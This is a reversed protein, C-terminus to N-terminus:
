VPLVQYIQRKLEEEDEPLFVVEIPLCHERLEVALGVACQLRQRLLVDVDAEAELADGRHQLARLVVELGLQEPRVEIVEALDAAAGVTAVLAAVDAHAADGVVHARDGEADGVTRQRAVFAAAVDHALDQAAGRAIAVFEAQLLREQEFEDVHDTAHHPVLIRFDALVGALAAGHDLAFFLVEQDDVALAHRAEVLEEGAGLLRRRAHGRVPLPSKANWSCSM